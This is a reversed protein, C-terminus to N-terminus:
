TILWGALIGTIYPKSPLLFPIACVEMLKNRKRAISMPRVLPFYDSPLFTCPVTQSFMQIRSALPIYFPRNKLLPAHPLCSSHLLAPKLLFTYELPLLHYMGGFCLNVYPSCPAIDWFIAVNMAVSHSGWIRCLVTQNGHFPGKHPYQLFSITNEGSLQKKIWMLLLSIQEYFERSHLPWDKYMPLHPIHIKYLKIYMM